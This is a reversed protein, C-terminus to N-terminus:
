QTKTGVNKKIVGFYYVFDMIVMMFPIFLSVIMLILYTTKQPWDRKALDIVLVIWWIFFFLSLAAYIIWFLALGGLIGAAAVGAAADAADTTTDTPFDGIQALLNLFM